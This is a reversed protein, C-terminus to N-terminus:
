TGYIHWYSRCVKSISSTAVPPTWGPTAELYYLGVAWPSAQGEIGARNDMVSDFQLSEDGRLSRRLPSSIGRPEVRNRGLNKAVSLAQDAERAGRGGEQRAQPDLQALGASITLVGAPNDLHPVALRQVGTRM